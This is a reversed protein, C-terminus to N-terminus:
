PSREIQRCCPLFSYFHFTPLDSPRGAPPRQNGRPLIARTLVAPAGLVDLGRMSRRWAVPVDIRARLRDGRRGSALDAFENREVRLCHQSNRFTIVLDAKARGHLRCFTIEARAGLGYFRAM